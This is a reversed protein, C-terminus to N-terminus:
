CQRGEEKGGRPALATQGAKADTRITTGADAECRAGKRGEKGNGFSDVAEEYAEEKKDHKM